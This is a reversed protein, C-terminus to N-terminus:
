DKAKFVNDRITYYTDAFFVKRDDSRWNYFTDGRRIRLIDWLTKLRSPSNGNASSRAGRLVFLIHMLERGLNRCVLTRASLAAAGATSANDTVLQAHWAPYEFGQRRSLALSGWARGNLEIFWLTGSHDRLLEIMFLGHWGAAVMMAEASARAHGPPTQSVCASSGSGEPNMMRIRRHASWARVGEAAALGFIGEGIGAILTQAVLPIREEWQEVARDLEAKNGCIWNGGSCVRGQRIPVCEAAKLIIPFSVSEAFGRIEKATRALATKPVNFGAKQAAQVQLYKNLALNANQGSPGALIWDRGLEVKNVLYLAKDDLPMLIRQDASTQEIVSAAVERLDCLSTELDKEPATVERIEVHRSFRLACAKGKRAFAIVRFGEDVLSWVTEPAALAEAFGVLVSIRSM